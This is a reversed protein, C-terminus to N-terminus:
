RYMKEAEDKELLDNTARGQPDKMLRPKVDEWRAEPGRVVEQL